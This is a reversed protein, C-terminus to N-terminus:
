WTCLTGPFDKNHKNLRITKNLVYNQSAGSISADDTFPDIGMKAYTEIQKELAMLAPIVDADNYHRQWDHHNKCGYEKWKKVYLNEYDEQSIDDKLQSYFCEKPLIETAKELQDYSTFHEHPYVLKTM